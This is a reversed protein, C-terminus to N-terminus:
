GEASLLQTLQLLADEKKPGHRKQLHPLHTAKDRLCTVSYHCAGSTLTRSGVTEQPLAGLLSDPSCSPAPFLGLLPEIEPLSGAEDQSRPSDQSMLSAGSNIEM